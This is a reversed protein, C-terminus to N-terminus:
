GSMSRRRTAALCGLLGMGLLAISTPEPVISATFTVTPESTTANGPDSFFEYSSTGGWFPNAYTGDALAYGFGNGTLQPDTASVLNDVAYPENQPIATGAPQLATIAVGNREGTIGAIQYFGSGDATDATTFTGDASVGSGSYTWDWLLSARAPAAAALSAVLVASLASTKLM